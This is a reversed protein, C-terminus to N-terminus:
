RKEKENLSSGVQQEEEEEALVKGNRNTEEVEDKDCSRSNEM